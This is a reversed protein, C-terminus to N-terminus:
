KKHKEREMIERSAEKEVVKRKAEAEHALRQALVEECGQTYAVSTLIKSKTFDLFHQQQKKKRAPIVEPLAFFKNIDEEQQEQLHTHFALDIPVHRERINYNSEHAHPVHM